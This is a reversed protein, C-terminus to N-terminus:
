EETDNTEEENDGTFIPAPKLGQREINKVYVETVSPNEELYKSFADFFSGFTMKELLSNLHSIVLDDLLEENKIYFMILPVLSNATNYGTHPKILKQDEFLYERIPQFFGHKRLTAIQETKIKQISGNLALKEVFSGKESPDILNNELLIIALDWFGDSNIIGRKFFYDNWLLRILEGDKTCMLLKEPYVTIFDKFIDHDSTIFQIFGENVAENTSFAIDKWFKYFDDEKDEIYLYSINKLLDNINRLLDSIESTKVVFPIQEILYSYDQGPQTLNSDFHKEIKNLLGERGGNVIFKSLNSQIFLWFSEVHPYSIINDKSHACDNRKRRWYVMDERLDNNILYVKSRGDAIKWQTTDFVTQDWVSDDQIKNLLGQWTGESITDPRSNKAQELRHKLVKLVFYYSMLFSARYAGIKYCKIAEKILSVAEPSFNQSQIYDEFKLNM